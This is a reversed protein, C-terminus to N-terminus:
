SLADLSLDVAYTSFGREKLFVSMGPAGCGYELVRADQIGRADLLALVQQAKVWELLSVPHRWRIRPLRAM